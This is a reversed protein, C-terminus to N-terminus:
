EKTSNVIEVKASDLSTYADRAQEILDEGEIPESSCAAFLLAYVIIFIPLIIKRLKITM